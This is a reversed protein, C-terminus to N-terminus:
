ALRKILQLNEMAIEKEEITYYINKKSSHKRLEIAM